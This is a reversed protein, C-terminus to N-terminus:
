CFCKAATSCKWPHAARFGGLSQSSFHSPSTWPHQSSSTEARFVLGSGPGAAETTCISCLPQSMEKRLSFNPSKLSFNPSKRIKLDAISLFYIIKKELGVGFRVKSWRKLQRASKVSKSGLNPTQNSYPIDILEVLAPPEDQQQEGMSYRLSLPSCCTCPTLISQCSIGARCEWGVADWLMWISCPGRLPLHSGGSLSPEIPPFLPFLWSSLHM